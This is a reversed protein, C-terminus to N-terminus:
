DGVWVIVGRGVLNNIIEQRKVIAVRVRRARVKAVQYGGRMVRVAQTFNDGHNMM